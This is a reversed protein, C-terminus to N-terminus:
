KDEESQLIIEGDKGRELERKRTLYALRAERFLWFKTESEKISGHELSESMTTKPIYLVTAVEEEVAEL